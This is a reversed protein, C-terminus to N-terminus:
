KEEPAHTLFIDTRDSLYAHIFHHVGAETHFQMSRARNPTWKCAGNQKDIEAVYYTTGNQHKSIYWVVGEPKQKKRNAVRRRILNINSM